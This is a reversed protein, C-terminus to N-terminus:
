RSVLLLLSFAFLGLFFSATAGWYYQSVLPRTSENRAAVLGFVFFILFLLWLALTLSLLIIM